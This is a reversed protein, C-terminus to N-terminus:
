QKKETKIKGSAVRTEIYGQAHCDEIINAMTDYIEKTLASVRPTDYCPEDELRTSMEVRGPKRSRIYLTIKM